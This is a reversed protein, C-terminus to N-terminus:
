KPAASERPVRGEHRAECFVSSRQIRRQYGTLTLNGLTHLWREQVGRWEEGLSDRWEKSLYENQPLIHEITYEDVPVPEKRDHNELKAGIARETITSTGCKSKADFSKTM